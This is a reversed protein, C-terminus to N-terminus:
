KKEGMVMTTPQFIKPLYEFNLSNLLRSVTGLKRVQNRPLEGTKLFWTEFGHDRLLRELERPFMVNPHFELTEGRLLGLNGVLFIQYLDHTFRNPTKVALVGGPRLVRSAEEVFEGPDELHEIVDVSVVGDFSRDDLDLGSVDGVRADQFRGLERGREIREEDLDISVVEFGEDVLEGSLYGTGCGADLVRGDRPMAEVFGRFFREPTTYRSRDEVERGM